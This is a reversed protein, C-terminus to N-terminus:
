PLAPTILAAQAVSMIAPDALHASLGVLAAVQGAPLVHPGSCVTPPSVCAADPLPWVVDKLLQRMHRVVDM